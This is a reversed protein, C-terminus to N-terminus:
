FKCLEDKQLKNKKIKKLIELELTLSNNIKKYEEFFNINFKELNELSKVFNKNKHAKIWYKKKSALYQVIDLNGCWCALTLLKYDERKILNKDNIEYKKLYNVSDSCRLVCDLYVDKENNM